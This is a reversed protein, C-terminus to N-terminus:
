DERLVMTLALASRDEAAADLWAVDPMRRFWSVQRRAYRRTLLQTQQMAEARGLEGALEALAQAYGIARAATRGLGPGDRLAQVEALLGDRWMAEARADLRAVLQARELGLGITVSEQWPPRDEPLGPTFAGALEVVELARVIRRGNAPDVREAAAPDRTSLRAHLAISGEADLEAELRARVAEDRAPFAFDQVVSSVYLGSGGVLIPVVGDAQLAEIRGRAAQQYEAVSYEATPPLIDILHHPVGRRAGLPLKATGIDMGRYVQMADAGIIEAPRGAAILSEALDLALESKGTGTAGVIVVLRPRRSAAPARIV